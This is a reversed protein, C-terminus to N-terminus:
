KLFKKRLEYGVIAMGYFRINAVMWGIFIWLQFNEIYLPFIYMCFPRIFFVDFIEAMWFEAVLNRFTKMVWLFWYKKWKKYDWIVERITIFTYISGTDWISGAFASVERSWTLYLWLFSFVQGWLIWCIEAPAYRKFWEKIKWYRNMKTKYFKM